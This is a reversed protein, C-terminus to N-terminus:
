YLTWEGRCYGYVKEPCADSTIDMRYLTAYIVDGVEAERRLINARTDEFADATHRTNIRGTWPQQTETYITFHFAYADGDRTQENHKNGRITTTTM